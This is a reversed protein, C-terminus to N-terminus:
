RVLSWKPHPVVVPTKNAVRETNSAPHQVVELVRPRHVARHPEVHDHSLSLPYRVAFAPRVRTLSTRPRDTHGLRAFDGSRSRGSSVRCSLLVDQLLKQGHSGWEYRECM